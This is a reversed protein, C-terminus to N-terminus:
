SVALRRRCDGAFGAIDWVMTGIVVDALEGQHDGTVRTGERVVCLIRIDGSQSHPM